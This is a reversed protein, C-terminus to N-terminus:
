AGVLRHSVLCLSVSFTIIVFNFVCMHVSSDFEPRTIPRINILYSPCRVRVQELSDEEATRTDGNSNIPIEMTAAKSLISDTM